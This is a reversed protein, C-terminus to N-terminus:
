GDGGARRRRQCVHFRLSAAWSGKGYIGKGDQLRHAENDELTEYVYNVIDWDCLNVSKMIPCGPMSHMSTSVMYFVSGVRIIDPDPVDAWLIPNRILATTVSESEKKM